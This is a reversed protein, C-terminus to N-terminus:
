RVPGFLAVPEDLGRVDHKGLPELGATMYDAIEQTCLIPKGLVKTLAEVRSAVNVAQGIVTFDLRGPAGVNGYAVEGLHLATGFDLRELGVMEREENYVALARRAEVAAALANAVQMASSIADEIPFVALVGDGLFKLVDGHHTQVADVIIEFYRNLADLLAQDAWNASKQTFGRLDSFMVVADMRSLEGRHISGAVVSSSPGAGLYTKLLSGLSRRVAMPEMSAALPHRLAEFLAIHGEDFGGDTNTVFSAGQVSGDGYELPMAYFDTGGEALLEHFVRHDNQAHLNEIRRRLPKRHDTVYEFPSGIWIDTEMWENPVVYDRTPTDDSRWIVGWATILPNAFRQAVRVRWLPVGADLLRQGLQEVLAIGDNLQRADGVLWQILEDSETKTVM